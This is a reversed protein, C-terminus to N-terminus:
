KKEMSIILCFWYAHGYLFNDILMLTSIFSFTLRETLVNCICHKKRWIFSGRWIYLKGLSPLNSLYWSTLSETLACCCFFVKFYGKQSTWVRKWEWEEVWSSELAGLSWLTYSFVLCILQYKSWILSYQNSFSSWLHLNFNIEIKDIKSVCTALIVIIGKCIAVLHSM